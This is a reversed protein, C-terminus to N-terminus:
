PDDSERRELSQSVDLTREDSDRSAPTPGGPAPTDSSSLASYTAAMATSYFLTVTGAALIATLKHM